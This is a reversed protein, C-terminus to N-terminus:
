IYRLTIKERMKNSRERYFVMEEKGLCKEIVSRMNSKIRADERQYSRKEIMKDHMEYM